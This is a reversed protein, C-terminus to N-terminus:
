YEYRITLFHFYFCYKLDINVIESSLSDDEVNHHEDNSSTSEFTSEVM